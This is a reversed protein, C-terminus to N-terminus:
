PGFMMGIFPGIFVQTGSAMQYAPTTLGSPPLKDGNSLVHGSEAKSTPIQDFARPSEVLMSIGLAVATHQGLRYQISPELSLVPSLYSEADTILPDRGGSPTTVDRTLIMTRYALGVGGAISFRIKQGQLTLRVRFIGAGGVRHVTFEEKRAPDPGIGPDVSSANWNLTPASQDYQLGGYLEVGIPDWHYGIFGNLGGGLAGGEGDCSALEAPKSDQCTKQMSHSMGGPLLTMLLGFGGYVGELRQSEQQVAGTEIKSSLKLTISRALTEKDKLEIPEEFADYGDRTVKVTHSGAPIDSTFTGEGVLKGDLYILGKGDSTNLKLTAVTASASLEVERTKGREVSVKEPAATMAGARGSVEHPGAEVEGSWPADGMDVGDVFVRIAKGTKERVSLRGKTGASELKVQVTTTAGAAVNPTQDFPLFGDKTVRVRHPGVPLRLPAALPTTGMPREDVQIAAGAETTELALVGTRAAIEKLRAEAAAKKAGPTKAGYTKLWEDYAAYAETDRKQQYHANALGDLADASPAAKNSAEFETAAKAWEKAGAAKNGNALSTKADPAQAFAIPTLVVTNMAFTALLSVVGCAFRSSRSPLRAM